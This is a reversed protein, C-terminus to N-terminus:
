TREIVLFHSCRTILTASVHTYSICRFSRLFSWIYLSCENRALYLTCSVYTKLLSHSRHLPNPLTQWRSTRHKIGLLGCLHWHTCRDESRTTSCYYVLWYLGTSICFFFVHLTWAEGLMDCPMSVMFSCSDNSIPTYIQPVHNEPYLNLLSCFCSKIDFIINNPLIIMQQIIFSLFPTTQHFWTM